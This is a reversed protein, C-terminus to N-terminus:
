NEEEGTKCYEFAFTGHVECGSSTEEAGGILPCDIDALIAGKKLTTIPGVTCEPFGDLTVLQLTDSSFFAMSAQNAAYNMEDKVSGNIKVNVPIGRNKDNGSGNVTFTKNARVICDVTVDNKGNEITGGPNPSGVEYTFASSTGATCSRSGLGPLNKNPPRLTISFGMAAPTPAPDSCAAMILALPLTLVLPLPRPMM